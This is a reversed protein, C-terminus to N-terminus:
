VAFIFPSYMMEDVNKSGSDSINEQSQRAIEVQQELVECEARLMRVRRLLIGRRKEIEEESSLHETVVKKKGTMVMPPPEDDMAISSFSRAAGNKLAVETVDAPPISARPITKKPSSVRMQTPTQTAKPLLQPYSKALSAKTPTMYNPPLLKRSSVINESQNENSEPLDQSIKRRKSTPSPM